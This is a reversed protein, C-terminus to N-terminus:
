HYSSTANEVSLHATKWFMLTTVHWVFRSFEPLGPSKLIECCHEITANLIADDDKM